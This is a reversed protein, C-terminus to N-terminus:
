RNYRETWELSLSLTLSLCRPMALLRPFIPFTASSSKHLIRKKKAKMKRLSWSSWSSSSPIITHHYYHHHPLSFLIKWSLFCFASISFFELIEKRVNGKIDVPFAKKSWPFNWERYWDPPNGILVLILIRLYEWHTYLMVYKKTTALALSIAILKISWSLRVSFTQDYPNFSDEEMM